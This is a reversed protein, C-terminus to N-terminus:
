NILILFGNSIFIRSLLLSIFFVEIELRVGGLLSVLKMFSGLLLWVRQLGAWRMQEGESSFWLAGEFEKNVILGVSNKEQREGRLSWILVIGQLLNNGITLSIVSLIINPTIGPARVVWWLFSIFRKLPSYLSGWEERSDLFWTSQAFM